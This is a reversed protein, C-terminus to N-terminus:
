SERNVPLATCHLLSLKRKDETTASKNAYEVSISLRSDFDDFMQNSIASRYVFREDFKPNSYYYFYYYSSSSIHRSNAPFGQLEDDEDIKHKKKNPRSFLSKAKEETNHCMTAAFSAATTKEKETARAGLQRDTQGDM